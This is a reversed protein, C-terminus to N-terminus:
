LFYSKEFVGEAEEKKKILNLKELIRKAIEARELCGRELSTRYNEEVCYRIINKEAETIEIKNEKGFLESQIQKIKEKRAVKKTRGKMNLYEQAVSKPIMKGIIKTKWGTKPPIEVGLLRLQAYNFGGNGSMGAVIFDETIEFMEEENNMYVVKYLRHDQRFIPEILMIRRIKSNKKLVNEVFSKEPEGNENM